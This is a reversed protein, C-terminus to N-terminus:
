VSKQDEKGKKLPERLEIDEGSLIKERVPDFYSHEMAEKATIRLEHDWTLMRDLLDLAEEGAKSERSKPVHTSWKVRPKSGLLEKYGEMSVNFKEAYKYLDDTGLVKSIKVLMSLSDRDGSYFLREKLTIM